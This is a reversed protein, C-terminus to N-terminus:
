LPAMACGAVAQESPGGACPAHPAQKCSGINHKSQSCGRQRTGLEGPSMSPMLKIAPGALEALTKFHGVSATNAAWLFGTLSAADFSAGLAGAKEFVKGWLRRNDRAQLYALAMAADAVDKPTASDSSVAADIASLLKPIDGEVALAPAAAVARSTSLSRM